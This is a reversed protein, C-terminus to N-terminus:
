KVYVKAKRFKDKSDTVKVWDTGAASPATYLAHTEDQAVITGAGDVSWLYPPSGGSVTFVSTQGRSIDISGPSLTLPGSVVSITATVEASLGDVVRVTEEGTVGPAQYEFTDLGTVLITGTGPPDVTATYPPGAGGYIVFSQTGGIAVSATAPSLLLEDTNVVSVMAEVVNGLSDGAQVIVQEDVGFAATYTPATDTTPGTPSVTGSGFVSYQYPPLGGSVRFGLDGGAPVVADVPDISFARYVTIALADSQGAYDTATLGVSLSDDALGTPATYQLTQPDFVGGASAPPDLTWAIPEYGGSRSVIVPTGEEVTLTDPNVALEGPFLPLDGCGALTLLLASVLTGAAVAAAATRAAAGPFLHRGARGHLIRM